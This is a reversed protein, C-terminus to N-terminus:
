CFDFLILQILRFQVFWLNLEGLEEEASIYKALLDIPKARGDQIRIKSRMKAQEVHFEDEKAAWASYKENERMRDELEMAERQAERERERELRAKKVKELEIRQEEAKRKQLRQLERESLKDLGEKELKKGWKFTQEINSDGFPNDENTYTVEEEEEDGAGGFGRGFGLSEKERKKLAKLEKKLLRRSRKEELSEAEKM